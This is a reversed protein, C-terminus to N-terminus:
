WYPPGMVLIDYYLSYCRTPWWKPNENPRDLRAWNDMGETTISPAGVSKAELIEADVRDWKAAFDIYTHRSAYLSKATNTASTALLLAALISIIIGKYLFKKYQALLSGVLFSAYLFFVILMFVGIVLTRTPPYKAYGYVGPLFTGFLLLLGGFYSLPILWKSNQNPLKYDKGIWILLFIAGLLTFVKDKNHVTENLFSIYSAVSIEILASFSPASPMVSRRIANSPAYLIIALSLLTGAIGAFFIVLVKDKLLDQPNTKFKLKSHEKKDGFLLLLRLFALYVLLSFQIVLYTESLGGSLFFLGFSLPALFKIEIKEKAILLLIGWFVLVILPLLYSRMGNWWFFSQKINPNLRMVLFISTTALLLARWYIEKQIKANKLLLYLFFITALVWVALTLPPIWHIHYADFLNLIIWDTGYASYRGNITRYSFIISGLFGDKTAHHASCYDDALFRTFSGLYGYTFLAISTPLLIILYLLINKNKKM